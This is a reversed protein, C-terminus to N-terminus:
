YGELGYRLQVASRRHLAERPIRATVLVAVCLVVGLSATLFGETWGSRAAIWGVTLGGSLAGANVAMYFQTFGWDRRSDNVEYLQGVMASINPKFLGSGLVITALSAALMTQRAVGHAALWSGGSTALGLQLHGLVIVIAGALL